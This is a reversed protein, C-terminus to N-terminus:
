VAYNNIVDSRGAGPAAGTRFEGDAKDPEGMREYLMARASHM